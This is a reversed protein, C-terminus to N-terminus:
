ALKKVRRKIKMLLGKLEEGTEAMLTTDDKGRSKVLFHMYVCMCVGWKWSGALLLQSLPFHSPSLLGELIGKGITRSGKGLFKKRFSSQV